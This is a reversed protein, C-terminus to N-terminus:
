LAAIDEKSVNGTISIRLRSTGEPVTPPRIGRVDFGAAQLTQAILGADNAPTALAGSQYNANGVVLAHRSQATAAGGALAVALLAFLTTIPRAMVPGKWAARRPPSGPLTLSADGVPLPIRRHVFRTDRSVPELARRPRAAM